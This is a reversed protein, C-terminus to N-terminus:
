AVQQIASLVWNGGGHARTFTWIEAAQIPAVLSGEAVYDPDSSTKGIHVMYDIASWKLHVTAYDMPGETWAEVLDGALPAVQEVHNVLGRSTNAALEQSFYHQMESTLYPALNAVDGTGWALQIKELLSLFAQYDPAALTLPTEAEGQQPANQQFSSDPQANGGMFPSAFGGQGTGQRSRFFRYALYGLGGILLLPLLMGGGGGGMMDGGVGGAMASHGFFASFLSAGLFSGAMGTLFPHAAFFSPAAAPPPAFSPQAMAPRPAAQPATSRTIPAARYTSTSPMSQYTHGGRSGMSGGGGARALADPPLAFILLALLSLFVFFSPRQTM